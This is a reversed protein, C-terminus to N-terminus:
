DRGRWSEGRGSWSGILGGLGHLVCVLRHVWYGDWLEIRGEGGERKIGVRDVGGVRQLAVHDLIDDVLHHARGLRHLPQHLRQLVTIERYM